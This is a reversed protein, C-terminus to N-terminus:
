GLIQVLVKKTKRYNLKIARMSKPKAGLFPWKRICIPALLERLIPLNTSSSADGRRKEMLVVTMANRQCSQLARVTLLTHNITGLSNQAVVIIECCLQGILDVVTFGEGLPAMVGGLGEIVLHSCRHQVNQIRDLVQALTIKKGGNRQAAYPSVPDPFHFPNVEEIQVHASQQVTQFIEVDKRDGASFPKMALANEGTKRLHYLLSAAVLTKGVGTDTGTIFTIKQLRTSRM